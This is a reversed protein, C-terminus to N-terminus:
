CNNKIDINVIIILAIDDAFNLDALREGEKWEIGHTTGDATRKLIWDMVLLYLLPSLVRGVPLYFIDVALGVGRDSVHLLTLGIELKGM